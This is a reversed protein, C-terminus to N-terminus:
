KKLASSLAIVAVGATLWPMIKQAGTTDTTSKENAKTLFETFKDLAMGAADQTSSVADAARQIVALAIKENSAIAGGDTINVDHLNNLADKLVVANDTAAIRQDYTNTAQSSSSSSSSKGGM